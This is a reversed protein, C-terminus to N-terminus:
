LEKLLKLWRDWAQEMAKKEAESAGEEEGRRMFAHGAGEYTVPDYSKGAQKMLDSTVPVTQNIRADNGGYFGYVSAHIKQIEEMQDPGSGYFVFAAILGSNDVALQFSQKGGWCFGAVAVKGNAAPLGKVFSVVANLDSTIQGQSLHYLAERASDSNAFSSTRGGNPGMGSLLDPAIAIYGAEAIRDAVTEVWDTLGRNEHIIVVAMAKEHVEPYVLFAEVQRDGSPITVWEQHRPSGGPSDAFASPIATLLVCISIIWVRAWLPPLLHSPLFSSRLSSDNQM